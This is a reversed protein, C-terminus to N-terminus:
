CRQWRGRLLLILGSSYMAGLRGLPEAIANVTQEQIRLYLKGLRESVTGAVIGFAGLNLALDLSPECEEALTLGELSPYLLRLTDAQIYAIAVLKNFCGAAVAADSDSSLLKGRRAWLRRWAQRALLLPLRRRMAAPTAASGLGLLGLAREAHSRSEDLKGLNF